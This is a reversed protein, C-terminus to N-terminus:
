GKIYTVYRLGSLFLGKLRFRWKYAMIHLLEGGGGGMTISQKSSKHLHVVLQIAPLRVLHSVLRVSQGPSQSPM